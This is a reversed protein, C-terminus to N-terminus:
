KCGGVRKTGTNNSIDVVWGGVEEKHIHTHRHVQEGEELRMCRHELV